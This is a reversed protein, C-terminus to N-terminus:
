YSGALRLEEFYIEAGQNQALSNNVLLFVAGAAIITPLPFTMQATSGTTTVIVSTGSATATLGPPLVTGGINQGYFWPSIGQQPSFTLSSGQQATASAAPASQRLPVVPLASGGSITTGAALYNATFIQAAGSYGWFNIQAMRMEYLGAKIAIGTIGTTQDYRVLYSTM